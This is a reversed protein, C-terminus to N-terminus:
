KGGCVISKREVAGVVGGCDGARERLYERRDEEEKEVALMVVRSRERECSRCVNM